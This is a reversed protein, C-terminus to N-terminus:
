EPAAPVFRLPITVHGGAVPQGDQTKPRMQFKHTLKMAAAGFQQDPPDESVIDCDTLTGKETVACSIEARGGVGLRQAREPYYESMDDGNPKHLWDPNSIVTPRAPPPKSEAQVPPQPRPAEVPKIFLPPPPPINPALVAPPRPQVPPPPLNKPPPPPPKILQADTKEDSYQEYKPKFKASWLYYGIIGHFLGAVVLGIILGNNRRPRPLDFPNHSPHAIDIAPASAPPTDTM